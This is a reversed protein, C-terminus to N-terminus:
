DVLGFGGGGQTGDQRGRRLIMGNLNIYFIDGSELWVSVENASDNDIDAIRFQRINNGRPLFLGYWLHSGTDGAGLYPPAEGSMDTPDLCFISSVYGDGDVYHGLDNNVARAVIFPSDNTEFLLVDGITGPHWYSSIQNGQSTVTKLSSQYWGESDTTRLLLHTTDGVRFPTIGIINQRGSSGGPYYNGSKDEYAWLTQLQGDLCHLASPTATGAKVSVLTENIGDGDIDRVLCDTIPQEFQITDLVTGLRNQVALQTDQAQCMFPEVTRQMAELNARLNTQEDQPGSGARLCSVIGIPVGVLLSVIGSIAGWTGLKRWLVLRRYRERLRM